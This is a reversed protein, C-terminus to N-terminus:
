AAEEVIAAAQLSAELKARHTLLEAARVAAGGRLDLTATEAIRSRRRAGFRSGGGRPRQLTWAVRVTLRGTASLEAEIPQLRYGLESLARHKATLDLAALCDALDSERHWQCRAIPKGTM